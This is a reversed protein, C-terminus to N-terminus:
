QFYSAPGSTGASPAESGVTKQIVTPAKRLQEKKRSLEKIITTKVNSKLGTSRLTEELDAIEDLLSRAVVSSEEVTLGEFPDNKDSSFRQPIQKGTAPDVSPDRTALERQAAGVAGKVRPDTSPGFLDVYGTLDSTPLTKAGGPTTLADFATSGVAEERIDENRSRLLDNQERDTQLNLLKLNTEIGRLELERARQQEATERSAIASGTDASRLAFNRKGEAVRLAYDRDSEEANRAFTRDAVEDTRADRKLTRDFLRDAEFADRLKEGRRQRLQQENELQNFLTREQNFQLTARDRGVQISNNIASSLASVGDRLLATLSQGPDTPILSTALAM